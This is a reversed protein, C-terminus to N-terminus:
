HANRSKSNPFHRKIGQFRIDLLLTDSGLPQLNSSPRCEAFGNLMVVAALVGVFLARIETTVTRFMHPTRVNATIDHGIIPAM